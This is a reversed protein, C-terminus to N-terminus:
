VRDKGNEIRNKIEKKLSVTTPLIYCKGDLLIDYYEKYKNNEYKSFVLVSGRNIENYVIIKERFYSFNEQKNLIELKNKM